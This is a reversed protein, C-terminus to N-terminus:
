DHHSGGDVQTAPPEGAYQLIIAQVRAPSYPYKRVLASM